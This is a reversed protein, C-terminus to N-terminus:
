YPQICDYKQILYRVDGMINDIEMMKNFFQESLSPFLDNTIMWLIEFFNLPIILLLYIGGLFGCIIPYYNLNSKSNILNSLEESIENLGPNNKSLVLLLKSYVEVRDLQKELKVIDVDNVENCGCDEEVQNDIIPTKNEVRIASTVNIGVLLLIISITILQKSISKM